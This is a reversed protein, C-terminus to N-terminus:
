ALTNHGEATAIVVESLEARSLTPSRAIPQDGYPEFGAALRQIGCSVRRAALLLESKVTALITERHM